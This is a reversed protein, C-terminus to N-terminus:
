SINLNFEERVYLKVNRDVIDRLNIEEVKYQITYQKMYYLKEANHENVHIQM